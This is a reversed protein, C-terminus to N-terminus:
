IRGMRERATVLRRDLQKMVEDAVQTVNLGRLPSGGEALSHPQAAFPPTTAMRTRERAPAMRQVEETHGASPFATSMRERKAEVRQYRRAITTVTTELREGQLQARGAGTSRNMRTGALTLPLAISKTSSSKYAVWGGRPSEGSVLAAPRVGRTRMTMGAKGHITAATEPAPPGGAIKWVVPRVVFLQQLVVNNFANRVWQRQDFRAVLTAMRHHHRVLDRTAVDTLQAKVFGRMAPRLGFRNAIRAAWALHGSGSHAGTPLGLRRPTCLGQKLLGPSQKWTPIRKRM